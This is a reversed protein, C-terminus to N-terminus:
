GSVNIRGVLLILVFMSVLVLMPIDRVVIDTADTSPYEKFNTAIEIFRVMGLAIPITSLLLANAGWIAQTEPSTIFGAFSAMFVSAFIVAALLWFEHIGSNGTSQSNFRTSMQFRKISLMFLSLEMLLVLAWYSLQISLFFSGYAFRLSFGTSVIAIGLINHSKLHFNSYAFNVTLYLLLVLGSTTPEDSALFNLSSMLALLLLLFILAHKKKVEEAALPRLKRVPDKRDFEIDILDNFIYVAGAALSYIVAALISQGFDGFSFASGLSVVPLLVIAQKTWQHPRMLRIIALIM